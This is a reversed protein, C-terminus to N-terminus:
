RPVALLVADLLRREDSGDSNSAAFRDGFSTLTAFGNTYKIEGHNTKAADMDGGFVSNANGCRAGSVM